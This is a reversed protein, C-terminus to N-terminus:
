NLPFNKQLFELDLTPYLLFEDLLSKVRAKMEIRVEEKCVAKAKSPKGANKGKQIITPTSNKLVTTIIDAIEVMQKKGM